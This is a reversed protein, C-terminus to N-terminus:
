KGYVVKGGAKEIKEQATKSVKELDVDVKRSFDGEGLIKINNQSKKVIGKDKLTVLNVVEGDAYKAEIESLNIVIYEKKFPHNSFGRRALRRFLPMQGGEFGISTGGGSRANQGKHGRGATKGQGASSGRGVIRKKKAGGKPAKITLDSM